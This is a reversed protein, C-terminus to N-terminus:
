ADVCRLLNIGVCLVGLMVLTAGISVVPEIRSNGSMLFFLGVSMIPLGINHLVFHAKALWTQAANPYIRYLVGILGLSLWGLLNIHAHLPIQQYNHTSAMYIGLAVGIMFYIAALRILWKSM